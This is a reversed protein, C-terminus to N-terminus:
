LNSIMKLIHTGSKKNTLIRNIVNEWISLEKQNDLNKDETNKNFIITNALAIKLYAMIQAKQRLINRYQLFSVPTNSIELILKHIDMSSSSLGRTFIFNELLSVRLEGLAIESSLATQLMDIKEPIIEYKKSKVNWLSIKRELYNKLDESMNHLLLNEEDKSLFREINSITYFYRDFLPPTLCMFIYFLSLGEGELVCQLHSPINFVNNININHILDTNCNENEYQIVLFHALDHPDVNKPPVLPNGVMYFAEDADISNYFGKESLIIQNKSIAILANFSVLKDNTLIINRTKSNAFRHLAYTWIDDTVGTKLDIKKDDINKFQNISIIERNVEDMRTHLRYNMEILQSINNLAFELDSIGNKDRFNIEHNTMM